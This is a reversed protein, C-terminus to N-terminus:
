SLSLLIGGGAVFLLGTWDIVSPCEGLFAFGLIAVVLQSLRDVPAVLSVDGQKLARLFCLTSQGSALGSLVIFVWTQQSLAFPSSLNENAIILLPLFISVVLDAVTHRTLAAAPNVKNLAKRWSSKEAGHLLEALTISSIALHAANENFRVLVLEPRRKIVDISIHTDLLYRLV